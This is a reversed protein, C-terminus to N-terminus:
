AFNRQAVSKPARGLNLKIKRMKSLQKIYKKREIKEALRRASQELFYVNQSKKLFARWLRWKQASPDDGFFLANMHMEDIQFCYYFVFFVCTTIMTQNNRKKSYTTGRKNDHTTM